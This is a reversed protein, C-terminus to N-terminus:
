KITHADKHLVAGAPKHGKMAERKLKTVVETERTVSPIDAGEGGSM